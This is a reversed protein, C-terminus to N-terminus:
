QPLCLRVGAVPDAAYLVGVTQWKAEFREQRLVPSRGRLWSLPVGSDVRVDGQVRAWDLRLQLLLAASFRGIVQSSTFPQGQSGCRAEWISRLMQLRLHTWLQLLEAPPQWVESDDLLLLQVSSCDLGSGPQVRDWVRELWRWAERAVSCQVFLHSPSELQYDCPLPPPLGEGAGAAGAPLPPPASPGAGDGGSQQEQQGGQDGHQQQQQQLQQQQEQEERERQLRARQLQQPACGPQCCCAQLLEPQSRAAHVSADGVRVAAHLLEWGMVRLQRPLKKDGARKYAAVWRADEPAPEPLGRVLPDASDDVAPADVHQLQQQQRQVTVQGAAAQAAAVRQRPHQRPPSPGMWNAHVGAAVDEQSFRGQSSSGFGQQLLEDFRRKLSLERQQLGGEPDLAGQKDRWVRPRVGWGRVWGPLQRCQLQLLRQTAEKVAYELVGLKPGFGWVSPDVQVESWAGVLYFASPPAAAAPRGPHDRPRRRPGGKAAFVVCAPVFAQGEAEEPEEGAYGLSGGEQVWWWEWGGDPGLRRAVGRDGGVQWQGVQLGTSPQQLAQQWAPPLVIGDVAPQLTLAARAQGLTVGPGRPQVRPPLSAPSRIVAGTVADAVSFNGVVLELQVQQASMSAHGLQRHLGLARFAAVYAARRPNLRPGAAAPGGARPQQVLLRVGVGPAERELNARMFLKWPQQHPHLLSAAVKGQMATVHAAVDVHGIGGRKVPLCAVAAAPKYVLRRSDSSRLCGIGLTFAKIRRQLLGMIREPVPIFQAHYVLCSALVQRAVECRGLLSLDYRSWLRARHTISALRQEFLREAFATGGSVSLLVGLHRIPTVATDVFVVGTEADAGVLPPHTGLVMAQCKSPNLKAGSAACYPNVARHLLTRVGAVTRAHLTTDDAHQQSCSAAQGGPLSISDVSDERQLQRCKAALPQAAIVYLLPSLPSGQACGSPISFV